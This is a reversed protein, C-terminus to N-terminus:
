PNKGYPAVLSDFEAKTTCVKEQVKCQIVSDPSFQQTFRAVLVNDYLDWVDIQSTWTNGIKQRGPGFTDYRTEVMFFCKNLSKSYHNSYDFYESRKQWEEDKLFKRTDAACKSQMAFASEASPEAREARLQKVESQLADASKELRTVRDPLSCGAGFLLAWVLACWGPYSGAM